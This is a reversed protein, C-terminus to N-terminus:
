IKYPRLILEKESIYSPFINKWCSIQRKKKKIIDKKFCFLKINIANLKDKKKKRETLTKSTKIFEQRVWTM